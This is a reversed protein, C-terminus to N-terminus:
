NDQEVIELYREGAEDPTFRWLMNQAKELMAKTKEKETLTKIIAEAMSDEDCVDVLYGGEGNLLIEKPGSKCNTAVCPTGVALAEILTNPLGEFLSSLVFVDAKSVYRYPNAEYGPMWVMEAIGLSETLEELEERLSGDGIIVLRCDIKDRVKKFAKILTDFGKEKSLRGVSIIIPVDEHFWSQEVVEEARETYNESLTPNYICRTEEGTIRALEDATEKSNAVIVDAKKYLRKMLSIIIRGKKEKGNFEFEAPHLRESVIVKLNERNHPIAFIAILNAFNQCSIFTLKGRKQEEKMYRKLEPIASITRKANLTVRNIGLEDMERQLHKSFSLALFDIQYGHEIFYGALRLNTKEVGGFAFYPHFFAIKKM